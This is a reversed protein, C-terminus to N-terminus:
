RWIIGDCRGGCSDIQKRLQAALEFHHQSLHSVSDAVLYTVSPLRKQDVKKNLRGGEVTFHGLNPQEVQPM